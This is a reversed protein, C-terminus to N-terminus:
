KSNLQRLRIKIETIETEKLQLAEEWKRKKNLEVLTRSKESQKFIDNEIIKKETLFRSLKEELFSIENKAHKLKNECPFYVESTNTIKDFNNM